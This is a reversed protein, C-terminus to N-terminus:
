RCCRKTLSARPRGYRHCHEELNAESIKAVDVDPRDVTFLIGHVSSVMHEQAANKKTSVNSTRVVHVLKQIHSVLLSSHMMYGLHQPQSKHKSRAADIVSM